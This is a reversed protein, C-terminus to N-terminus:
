EKDTLPYRMGEIEIFLQDIETLVRSPSNAMVTVDITVVARSPYDNQKITYGTIGFRKKGDM